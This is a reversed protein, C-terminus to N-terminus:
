VVTNFWETFEPYDIKLSGFFDDALDIESFSKVLFNDM